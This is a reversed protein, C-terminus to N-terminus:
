IWLALSCMGPKEMYIKEKKKRGMNRQGGRAASCGKEREESLRIVEGKMLGEPSGCIRCGWKKM